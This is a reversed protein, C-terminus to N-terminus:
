KDGKRGRGRMRRCNGSLNLPSHTPISKMITEASFLEANCDIGEINKQAKNFGILSKMWM